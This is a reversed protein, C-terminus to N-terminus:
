NQLRLANLPWSQLPGDVALEGRAISACDIIVTVRRVLIHIAESSM